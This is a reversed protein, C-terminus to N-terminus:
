FLLELKMRSLGRPAPQRLHPQPRQAGDVEPLCCRRRLEDDVILSGSDGADSFSRSGEGEIQNITSSFIGTDYERGSRRRASPTVRGHRV